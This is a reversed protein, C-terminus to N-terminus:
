HNILTLQILKKKLKSLRLQNAWQSTTATKLEKRMHQQNQYKSLIKPRLSGGFMM